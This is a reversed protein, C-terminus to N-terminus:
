ESQVIPRSIAAHHPDTKGRKAGEVKGSMMYIGFMIALFCGMWLVIPVSPGTMEFVNFLKISFTDKPTTTVLIVIVALSAIVSMPVGFVVNYNKTSFDWMRDRGHIWYAGLIGVVFLTLPFMVCFAAIELRTASIFDDSPM